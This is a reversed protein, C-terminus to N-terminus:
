VDNCMDTMKCCDPFKLDVCEKPPEEHLCTYVLAWGDKFCEIRACKTPHKISEYSDLIETGKTTKIVCKDPYEENAFIEYNIEAMTSHITVILALIVFVRFQPM